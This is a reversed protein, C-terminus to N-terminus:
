RFREVRVAIAVAWAIAGARQFPVDSNIWRNRPIQFVYSPFFSFVTIAGISAIVISNFVLGSQLFIRSKVSWM